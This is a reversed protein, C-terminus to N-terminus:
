GEGLAKRAGQRGIQVNEGYQQAMSDLHQIRAELIARSDESLKEYIMPNRQQLDQYMQLRLRYNQSGDDAMPPEVGAAIKLFNELEDDMERTQARDVDVIASEALHPSLRWMLSQVVPATEITKQTDIALFIDRVIEGVNKLYEPDLDQPDFTLMLDFQGQIEERTRIIPEGAANTIRALKEEPMYQQCLQLLQRDVERLNGLWWLVKFQRHLQVLGPPIDDAERGAYQNIQRWLESLMKDITAPYPPPQLWKYDGERRSQLEVLPAIYLEGETRRNRTVIPPVGNLQANDGYTDVFLKLMDQHPGMLEPIGRSDLLYKTLVERQVAHGPYKGHAYDVLRREHAATDIDSHFTIYYRGPVGDTNAARFYARVVQYLGRYDAENRETMTGDELKKYAPFVAVGEKGRDNESEKGILQEVFDRSWGESIQKELVDAKSLWEPEFYMRAKQFDLTNSPVFWDEFLRKACVEPGNRVEYPVPFEAYGDQRLSRIVKRARPRKLHPFYELLIEALADQGWEEDLLANQFDEAARRVQETYEAETLEAEAGGYLELASQVYQSMLEEATLRRYELATERRWYVGMFGVAPSDGFVYQALMILHKLWDFGLENAKIWRLLQTMKGARSTDEGGVGTVMVQARLASVVCLMVDENTLMDALRVRNDCAGEFPTAPEDNNDEAHKRGDSSQGEWICFRTNEADTGSTYIGRELDGLIASVESKLEELIPDSVPASGGEDGTRELDAKDPM